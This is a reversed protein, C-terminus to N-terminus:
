VKLDQPLRRKIPIQSSLVLAITQAAQRAHIASAVRSKACFRVSRASHRHSSVAVREIEDM